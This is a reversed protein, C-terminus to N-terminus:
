SRIFVSSTQQTLKLIRQNEIIKLLSQLIIKIKTVFIKRYTLKQANIEENSRM